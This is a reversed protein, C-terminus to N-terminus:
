GGIYIVVFDNMCDLSVLEQALFFYNFYHLLILALCPSDSVYCLGSNLDTSLAKPHLFNLLGELIPYCQEGILIEYM